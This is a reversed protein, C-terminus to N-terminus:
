AHSGSPTSNGWPLTSIDPTYNESLYRSEPIELGATDDTVWVGDEIPYVNKVRHTGRHNKAM